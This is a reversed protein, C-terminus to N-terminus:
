AGTGGEDDGEVPDGGGRRARLFFQRVRRKEGPFTILQAGANKELCRVREVRGVLEASFAKATTDEAAHV